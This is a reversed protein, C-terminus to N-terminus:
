ERSGTAWLMNIGAADQLKLNHGLPREPTGTRPTWTASFSTKVLPVHVMKKAGPTAVLQGGLQTCDSALGAAFFHGLRGQPLFPGRRCLESCPSLGHGAAAIQSALHRLCRTCNHRWLTPERLTGTWVQRGPHNIKRTRIVVSIAKSHKLGDQKKYTIPRISGSLRPRHYYGAPDSPITFSFPSFTRWYTAPSFGWCHKIHGRRTM